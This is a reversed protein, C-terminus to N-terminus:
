QNSGNIYICTLLANQYPKEIEPNLKEQKEVSNSRKRIFFAILM